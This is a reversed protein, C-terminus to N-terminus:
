WGRHSTAYGEPHRCAHRLPCFATCEVEDTGAGFRTLPFRGERIRGAFDLALQLAAGTNWLETQPEKKGPLLQGLPVIAEKAGIEQSRPRENLHAYAGGIVELGKHDIQLAAAYLPLQLMRGDAVKVRVSPLPPSGGTKYDLIIAMRPDSRKGDVRDIKGTLFVPRGSADDGLRVKELPYEAFLNGFNEAGGEIGDCIELFLDLVGGPGVFLVELDPTLVGDDLKTKEEEFLEIFRQRDQARIAALPQDDPTGSNKRKEQYFRQLVRHVLSGYHLRTPDAEREELHLVRSGFFRFPCAAYTELQSPSFQYDDPFLAELMEPWEIALETGSPRQGWRKFGTLIQEVDVKAENSIYPWLTSLSGNRRFARGLEGAAQGIGTVLENPKLETLVGLDDVATFFPSPLAPRDGDLTPRSLVLKEQAAEFVQAFLFQVEAEKQELQKNLQPNKLRRRVLTGEEPLAPIQCNVLGLVYVHRFQM